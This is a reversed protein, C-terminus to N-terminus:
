MLTIITIIPSILMITCGTAEDYRGYTVLVTYKERTPLARTVHFMCLVDGLTVTIEKFSLHFSPIKNKWRETLSYLLPSGLM